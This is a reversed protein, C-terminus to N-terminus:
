FLFLFPFFQAFFYGGGREEFVREHARVRLGASTWRGPGRPESSFMNWRAGDPM